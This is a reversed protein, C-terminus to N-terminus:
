HARTLMWRWSQAVELAAMGMWPLASSNPAKCLEQRARLVPLALKHTGASFWTVTRSTDRHQHIRLIVDSSWSAFGESYSSLLFTNIHWPPRDSRFIWHIIWFLLYSPLVNDPVQPMSGGVATDARWPIFPLHPTWWLLRPSKMSSRSKM